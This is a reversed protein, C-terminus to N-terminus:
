QKIFNEIYVSSDESLKSIIEQKSIEKIPVGLYVSLVERISSDTFLAQIYLHTSAISQKRLKMNYALGSLKCINERTISSVETFRGALLLQVQSLVLDPVQFCIFSVGKIDIVFKYGPLAEVRAVLYHPYKKLRVYVMTGLKNVHVSELNSGGGFGGVSIGITPLLYYRFAIENKSLDIFTTVKDLEGETLKRHEM